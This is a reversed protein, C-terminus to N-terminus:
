VEEILIGRYGNDETILATLESFFIKLGDKVDNREVDDKRTEGAHYGVDCIGRYANDIMLLHTLENFFTKTRAKAIEKYPPVFLNSSVVRTLSEEAKRQLEIVASNHFLATRVIGTTYPEDLDQLECDSVSIERALTTQM